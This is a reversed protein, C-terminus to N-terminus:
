KEINVKFGGRSWLWMPTHFDIPVYGSGALLRRWREATVARADSREAEEATILGIRISSQIVHTDPAVTISERDVFRVGGRQEMVYLWYNLIKEGGLYPLRKKNGAFYERIQDVSYGCTEFLKRVDGGFDEVFTECLRKWISPHRNPQLALRYRLLKQRLEEESMQVACEPFFVARTEGDAWTAAASEWLAYASRQYNLAMPLTFYLMNECSDAKLDPNADEPMREGGLEGYKHKEILRLARVLIESQDM